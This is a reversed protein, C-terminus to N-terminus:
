KFFTTDIILQYIGEQNSIKKLIWYKKDKFNATTIKKNQQINLQYLYISDRTKDFGEIYGLDDEENLIKSDSKQITVNQISTDGSRNFVFKFTVNIPETTKNIVEYKIKLAPDCSSLLVTFLLITIFYNM